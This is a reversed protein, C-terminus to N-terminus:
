GTAPWASRLLPHALVRLVLAIEQWLWVLATAVTPRSTLLPITLVLVLLNGLLIIAASFLYGHETIDSQRSKLVHGTLSVHFAYAAGLLLLFWVELRAGPWLRQAALGALAVLVAYFPFFYPALAIVFNTKSVVVHGGQSTVRLQRVRGGFLWTWLAHTLEHGAVYLWMPRPLLCYIGGWCVAGAVLPVWVIDVTASERLVRSLTAAGAWCVPLLLM